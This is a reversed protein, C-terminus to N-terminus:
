HYDVIEEICAIEIVDGQITFILRYPHILDVAYQGNRDGSLKHCRGIKYNLMIEVEEASQIEQIRLFIKRVM